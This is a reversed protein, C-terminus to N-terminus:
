ASEDVAVAEMVQDDEPLQVSAYVDTHEELWRKRYVMFAATATDRITLANMTGGVAAGVLPVLQLAKRQTLNIGLSKAIERVGLKELTAPLLISVVKDLGAGQRLARTIAHMSLIFKERQGVDLASASGLIGRALAEEEPSDVKYGYAAAVQRIVRQTVTILIPVDLLITAWGGAGAAAGSATGVGLNELIIKRAVADRAQLECPISKRTVEVSKEIKQGDLLHDALSATSSLAQEVAGTVRETMSEPIYKALSGLGREVLLATKKGTQELATPRASAWRDIDQRAKQHYARAEQAQEYLMMDTSSQGEETQAADEVPPNESQHSSDHPM